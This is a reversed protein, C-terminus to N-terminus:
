KRFIEDLNRSKKHQKKSTVSMKRFIKSTEECGPKRIKKPISIHLNCELARNFRTGTINYAHINTPISSEDIEMESFSNIFGINYGADLRTLMMYNGIKFKWRVGFGFYLGADIDHMNAKGININAEPIPLGQQDLTIEGGLLYSFDPALFLFPQINHNNSISFRYMLPIRISIYRSRVEYTVDYLEEGYSYTTRFGKHAILLEPSISFVDGIPVEIFVGFNPRLAHDNPLSSLNEDSYKFRATSIGGVIGFVPKNGYKALENGKVPQGIQGSLSAAAALLVFISLIIKKM